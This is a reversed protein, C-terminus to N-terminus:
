LIFFAPVRKGSQQLVEEKLLCIPMLSIFQQLQSHLNNEWEQKICSKLQPLWQQHVIDKM